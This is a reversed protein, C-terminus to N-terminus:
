ESWQDDINWLIEETTSNQFMNHLKPSVLNVDKWYFLPSQVVHQNFYDQIQHMADLVEATGPLNTKVTDWLKDFVPDNIRDDNSGSGQHTEPIQSSHYSYYSSLPDTPSVSAYQAVDFTGHALNCPTDAAIDNWSGFLITSKVPKVNVKVGIKALQAAVLGLADVRYQRTTTCYDLSLEVGNKSRFGDAGVKWGAGDLLSAAKDPSYEVQPEDKTWWFLPSYINMTLVPDVTGTLAREAIEKRNTALNLASKITEVDAQGFRQALRSTQYHYAEFTFSDESLLKEKGQLTPIDSHNLDTGVDYEQQDWGAKEADADSYYKYIFKDFPQTKGTAKWYEPNGKYETRDGTAHPGSPIYPGSYVGNQLATLPYLKTPADAVSVKEIYHKPLLPSFNTLYSEFVEKYHVTCTKGTGGDVGTIDDYGSGALAFALGANKPDAVWKWTAELDACTIPQGDSWNFPDHLKWTVDMKGGSVKVDGNSVLPVNDAISMQPFGANLYQKSPEASGATTSILGLMSPYQAEIDTEATAYYYNFTDIDQWEAYILTGGTHGVAEPKYGSGALNPLAQTTSAAASSTEQTTVASTTSSASPSTQAGCAALVIVGAGFLAVLRKSM